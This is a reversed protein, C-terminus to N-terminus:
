GHKRVMVIDNSIARLRGVFRNLILAEAYFMERIEKDKIVTGVMDDCIQARIEQVMSDFLPNDVIDKLLKKQRFIVNEDLQM